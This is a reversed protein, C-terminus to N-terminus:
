SAGHQSQPRFTSLQQELDGVTDSAGNVVAYGREAALLAFTTGVFGKGYPTRQLLVPLPEAIDPRYIDARLVVGDRMQVEVDREVILTRQPM